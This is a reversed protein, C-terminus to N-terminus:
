EMLEDWVQVEKQMLRHRRPVVLKGKLLADFGDLTDYDAGKRPANSNRGQSGKM